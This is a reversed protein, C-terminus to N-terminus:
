KNDEEGTEVGGWGVGGEALFRMGMSGFWRWVLDWKEAAMHLKLDADLSGAGHWSWVLRLLITQRIKEFASLFEFFTMATQM